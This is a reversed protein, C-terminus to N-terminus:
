GGVCLGAPSCIDYPDACASCDVSAGCIVHTGCAYGLSGCNDPCAPCDAPDLIFSADVVCSRVWGPSGGMNICRQEPDVCEPPSVGRQDNLIVRTQKIDPVRKVVFAMLLAVAVVAVVIGVIISVTRDM